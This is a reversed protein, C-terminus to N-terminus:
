YYDDEDDADPSGEPSLRAENMFGLRRNKVRAVVDAPLPAPLNAAAELLEPAQTFFIDGPELSGMEVLRREVELFVRRIPYSYKLWLIHHNEREVNLDHLFRAAHNLGAARGGAHALDMHFSLALLNRRLNEAYPSPAHPETKLATEIVRAPTDWPEFLLDRDRMWHWSALHQRLRAALEAHEGRDLAALAEERTTLGATDLLERLAGVSAMYEGSMVPTTPAILETAQPWSLGEPAPGLAALNASVTEEIFPYVVDDGQAQIFWCLSFFEVWRPWWSTILAVIRDGSLAALEEDDKPFLVLVQGLADYSARIRRMLDAMYAEDWTADVIAEWVRAFVDARFHYRCKIWKIHMPPLGRFGMVRPVMEFGPQVLSKLLSSIVLEPRVELWEHEGTEAETAFEAHFRSYEPLWQWWGRRWAPDPMTTVKVGPKHGFFKLTDHAAVRATEMSSLARRPDSATASAKHLLIAEGLAIAGPGTPLRDGPAFLLVPEDGAHVRVRPDGSREVADAVEQRSLSGIPVVWVRDVGRDSAAASIRGVYDDLAQRRDRSSMGELDNWLGFRDSRLDVDPILVAENVGDPVHELAAVSSVIPTLGGGGAADRWLRWLDDWGATPGTQDRREIEFEGRYVAGASGDVTVPEDAILTRTASETGVVCPLGLERSVIAAHCIMGGVDTVIAASNRMAVVMDPNTMPTVLVQGTRLALAQEINFVLHVRGSGAGPSAPVGTLVPDVGEVATAASVTAQPAFFATVPRSQVLHVEGGHIAWEVDQPGGFQAELDAALRALERAHDPALLGELDDPITDPGALWLRDPTVEGKVLKECTGEVHEVLTMSKGDPGAFTTFMVGSREAELFRQVVVAMAPVDKLGIDRAYTLARPAFVSSWVERITPELRDPKAIPFSEFIGAFSHAASDEVTASSRVILGDSNDEWLKLDDVQRVIEEWLDMPIEGAALARQVGAAAEPLPGETQMWARLEGIAAALGMADLTTLFAESTVVFGPPVRHGERILRALSAGKGGLRATEPAAGLLPEVYPHSRV